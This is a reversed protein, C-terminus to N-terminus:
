LKKIETINKLHKKLRERENDDEIKEVATKLIEMVEPGSLGKDSEDHPCAARAIALAAESSLEEDELYNGMLELSAITRVEALGWIFRQKVTTSRSIKLGQVLMQFRDNEPLDTERLLRVYGMLAVSRFSNNETNEALNLLEPAAKIDSWDALARVAIELLQPDESKTEDIVTRLAQEGGIRPLIKIIKGRNLGTTESLEMLLDDARKESDPIQGVAAVLARQIATIETNTEAAKLLNVLVPLDKPEVLYRLARLASLRVAGNNEKAETIIIDVFEKAKREALIDILVSRSHPPMDSLSNAVMPLASSNTYSLFAEKIVQADQEDATRAVALLDSVVTNQGLRVSAIIAALKVAHHESNMYPLIAPLISKDGRRGLM